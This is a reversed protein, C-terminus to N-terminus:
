PAPDGGLQAGVWLGAGLWPGSAIVSSDGDIQGRMRPVALGGELSAGARLRGLLLTPGIRLSADAGLGRATHGGVDDRSSIGKLEAVEASVVASADLALRESVPLRAGLGVGVGGSRAAVSGGARSAEGSEAHLHALIRLEPLLFYSVVLTVGLAGYPNQLDHRRAAVGAAV